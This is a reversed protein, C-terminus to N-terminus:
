SAVKGPGGTVRSPFTVSDSTKANLSLPEVLRNAIDEIQQAIVDQHTTVVEDKTRWLYDEDPEQVPRDPFILWEKRLASGSAPDM